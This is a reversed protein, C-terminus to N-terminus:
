DNHIILLFQHIPGTNNKGVPEQFVPRLNFFFVYNNATGSMRETAEAESHERGERQRYEEKNMEEYEDKKVRRVEEPCM